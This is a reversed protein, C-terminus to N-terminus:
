PHELAGIKEGFENFDGERLSDYASSLEKASWKTYDPKANFMDWNGKKDVQECLPLAQTMFTEVASVMFFAGVFGEIIEKDKIAEPIIQTTAVYMVEAAQDAEYICELLATFNFTGVKSGKLFGQLMETMEKEKADTMPAALRKEFASTPIAECAPIGQVAQQYAAYVALAGGVAEEINKTKYADEFTQIAADLVLAAKDEEGICALLAGINIGKFGLENMHSSTLGYKEEQMGSLEKVFDQQENYNAVAEAQKKEHLKEMAHSFFHVPDKAFDVAAEEAGHMAQKFNGFIDRHASAAGILASSAGITVASLTTAAGVLAM